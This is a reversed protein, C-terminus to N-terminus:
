VYSVEVIRANHNWACRLATEADAIKSGMRFGACFRAKSRGLTEFIVDIGVGYIEDSTLTSM